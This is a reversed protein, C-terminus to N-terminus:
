VVWLILGSHILSKFTLCSVMFSSSFMPFFSRSMPRSLSKKKQIHCRFCLYCFLFYVIQSQMLSFFKQVAFSIILLIFLCGVSHSFIYPFWIHSLPNIDLICLSRMCSLLLFGFLGILFHASSRLLCKELSSTWIALLYMFLHEVDSIRLFICILVVILSWRGSTLIPHWQFSLLYCTNDLIHLFLFGQASTPPFIFQHLRYTFCYM